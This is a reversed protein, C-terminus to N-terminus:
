LGSIDMLMPRATELVIFIDFSLHSFIFMLLQMLPQGAILTLHYCTMQFSKNILYHLLRPLFHHKWLCLPGKTSLGSTLCSLHRLSRRLYRLEIRSFVSSHVFSDQHPCVLETHIWAQLSGQSNLPIRWHQPVMLDCWKHPSCLEKLM